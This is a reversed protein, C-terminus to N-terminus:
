SRQTMRLLFVVVSAGYALATLFEANAQASKNQALVLGKAAACPSVFKLQSYRDDVEDKITLKIQQGQCPITPAM